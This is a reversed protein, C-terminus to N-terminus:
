KERRGYQEILARALIDRAEDVDDWKRGAQQSGDGMRPSLLGMAERLAAALLPEREAALAREVADRMPGEVPLGLKRLLREAAENRGPLLPEQRGNRIVDTM